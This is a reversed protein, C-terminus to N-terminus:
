PLARPALAADLAAATSQRTAAERAISLYHNGRTSPAAPEALEGVIDYRGRRGARNAARWACRWSEIDTRDRAVNRCIGRVRKLVSPDPQAGGHATTWGTVWAAVLDQATPPNPPPPPMGDLPLPTPEPSRDIM